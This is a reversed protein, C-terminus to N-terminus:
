EDVRTFSGDYNHGKHPLWGAFTARHTQTCIGGSWTIATLTGGGYCNKTKQLYDRLYDWGEPNSEYEREVLAIIRDLDEKSMMRMVESKEYM